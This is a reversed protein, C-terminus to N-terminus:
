RQLYCSDILPLTTRAYQYRYDRTMELHIGRPCLTTTTNRKLMVSLTFMNAMTSACRENDYTCEM